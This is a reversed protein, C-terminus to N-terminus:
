LEMIAKKLLEAARLLSQEDVREIIETIMM